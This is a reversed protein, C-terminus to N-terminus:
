VNGTNDTVFSRIKVQFQSKAKKIAQLAINKLYEATHSEAGTEFTDVLFSEGNQNIISCCVLPENRVNSWGDLSMCVTQGKLINRCEASIDEYVENLIPGGIHYASPSNYGPRLAGLM